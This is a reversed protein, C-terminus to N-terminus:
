RTDRPRPPYTWRGESETWLPVTDAGSGPRSRRPVSLRQAAPDLSQLFLAYEENTVEYRDLLFPRVHIRRTRESFRLDGFEVAEAGAIYAMGEPLDAPDFPCSLELRPPTAHDVRFPLLIPHPSARRSVVLVYSGADVRMEGAPGAEEWVKPEEWLLRPNDRSRSHVLALDVGEPM